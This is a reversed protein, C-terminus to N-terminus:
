LKHYSQYKTHGLRVVVGNLNDKGPVSISIVDDSNETKYLWDSRSVVPFQYHRRLVTMVGM